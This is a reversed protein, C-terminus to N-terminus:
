PRKTVFLAKGGEDDSEADSGDREAECRDPEHREGPHVNTKGHLCWGDLRPEKPTPVAGTPGTGPGEEVMM